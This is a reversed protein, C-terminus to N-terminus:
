GRGDIPPHQWAPQYPPCPTDTETCFAGGGMRGGGTPICHRWHMVCDAHAEATSAFLAAATLGTIAATQLSKRMTTGM